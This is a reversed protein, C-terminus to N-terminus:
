VNVTRIEGCLYTDEFFEVNGSVVDYMAGIIAVEGSKVMDRILVSQSLTIDVSRYVNIKAVKNVFDYNKSTRDGKVTVEQLVSPLIHDLLTTLNGMEIHDCAGSVAGCRTHGLIVILSAGAIKCCFELSGLVNETIINGALRTSFVDGLGLDFILESTIRSDICSVIAAYPHQRDKNQKVQQLLDVNKKINQTFRYNGEKLFQLAERPSKPM